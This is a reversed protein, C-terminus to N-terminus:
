RGIKKKNTNLDFAALHGLYPDRDVSFISANIHVFTSFYAIFKTKQHIGM